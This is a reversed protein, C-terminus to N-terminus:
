VSKERITVRRKGGGRRGPKVSEGVLGGGLVRKGEFFGGYDEVYGGNQGAMGGVLRTGFFGTELGGVVGKLSGGAHEGVYVLVKQM